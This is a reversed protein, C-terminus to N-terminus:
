LGLFQLIAGAGDKGAQVQVILMDHVPDETVLQLEYEGALPSVAAAGEARLGAETSFLALGLFFCITTVRLIRKGAGDRRM